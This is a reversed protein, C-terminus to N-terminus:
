PTDRLRKARSAPDDPLDPQFFGHESAAESQCRAQAEQLLARQEPSAAPGLKEIRRAQARASDCAIERQSSSPALGNRCSADLSSLRAQLDSSAKDGLPAMRLRLEDAQRCAAPHSPSCAMLFLPAVSLLALRLSPM